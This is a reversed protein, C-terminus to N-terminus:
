VIQFNNYYILTESQIAYTNWASAKVITHSWKMIWTLKAYWRLNIKPWYFIPFTSVCRGTIVYRGDSGLADVKKVENYCGELCVIDSQQIRLIIIKFSFFVKTQPSEVYAPFSQDDIEISFGKCTLNSLTSSLFNLIRVLGKRADLFHKKNSEFNKM